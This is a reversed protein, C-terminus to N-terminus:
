TCPKPLVQPVDESVCTLARMCQICSTRAPVAPGADMYSSVAIMASTVRCQRHLGPQVLDGFSAVVKHVICLPREHIFARQM